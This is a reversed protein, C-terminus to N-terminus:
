AAALFQRKAKAMHVLHAAGLLPLVAYITIVRWEYGPRAVILAFIINGAFTWAALVCLTANMARNWHVRELVIYKFAVVLGVLGILSTSFLLSSLWMPWMWQPETGMAIHWPLIFFTAAVPVFCLLMELTLAVRSIQVTRISGIAMVKARERYGAFLCGIAWELAAMDNPVHELENVMARAWEPRNDPLAHAANTALRQAIRRALSRKGRM